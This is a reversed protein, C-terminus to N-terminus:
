ISKFINKKNVVLLIGYSLAVMIVLVAFYTEVGTNSTDTTGTIQGKSNTEVDDSSSNSGSSNNSSVSDSSSSGSNGSSSNGSDSGSSSGSNSSNDGGTSTDTGCDVAWLEPVYCTSNECEAVNTEQSSLASAIFKITPVNGNSCQYDTNPDRGSLYSTNNGKRQSIVKLCAKGTNGTSNWTNYTEQLNSLCTSGSCWEAPTENACTEDASVIMPFMIVCILLIFYKKM